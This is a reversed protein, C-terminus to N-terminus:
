EFVSLGPFQSPIFFLVTFVTPMIHEYPAQFVYSISQEGPDASLKIHTMENIRIISRMRMNEIQPKLEIKINTISHIGSEVSGTANNEHHKYATYGTKLFGMHMQEAIEFYAETRTKPAVSKPFFIASQYQYKYINFHTDRTLDFEFLGHGSWVVLDVNKVAMGDDREEEIVVEEVKDYPYESAFLLAMSLPRPNLELYEVTEIRDNNAYSFGTGLEFILIIAVLHIYFKLNIRM